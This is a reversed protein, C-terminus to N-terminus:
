TQWEAISDIVGFKEYFSLVKLFTDAPESLLGLAHRMGAALTDQLKAFRENVAAIAGFMATNKKERQLVDAQLPWTLSSNAADLFFVCRQIAELLDALYRKESDLLQNTM